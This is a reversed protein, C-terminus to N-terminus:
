RRWEQWSSGSWILCLISQKYLARRSVNKCV